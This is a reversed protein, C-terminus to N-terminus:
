GSELLKKQIFYINYVNKICLKTWYLSLEKKETRFVRRMNQEWIDKARKMCECIFMAQERETIIQKM